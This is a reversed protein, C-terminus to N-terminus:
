DHPEVERLEVSFDAWVPVAADTDNEGATVRSWRFKPNSFSTVFFEANQTEESNPPLFACIIPERQGKRCAALVRNKTEDDFYGYQYNVRWVAGRIEKVMNGPIMTLGVSLQEEWATYGGKQSEPLLVAYGGVDLILQNM